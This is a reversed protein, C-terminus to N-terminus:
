REPEGSPGPAACEPIVRIFATSGRNGRARAEFADCYGISLGPFAVRIKGRVSATVTKRHTSKATFTVTVRESPRFGTGQVVVPSRSPVTLQAKFTAGAAAAVLVLFLAFVAALRV